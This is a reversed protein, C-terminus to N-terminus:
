VLEAARDRGRDIARMLASKLKQQDTTRQYDLGRALELASELYTRATRAATREGPTLLILM